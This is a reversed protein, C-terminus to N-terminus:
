GSGRLDCPRSPAVGRNSVAEEATHETSRFSFVLRASYLADPQIRFVTAFVDVDHPTARRSSPAIFVYLMGDPIAEREDVRLSPFGSQLRSALKTKLLDLQARSNTTDDSVSLWMSKIEAIEAAEGRTIGPGPGLANEVPPFRPAVDTSDTPCSKPTPAPLVPDCPPQGQLVALVLFTILIGQM